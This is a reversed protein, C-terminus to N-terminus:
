PLPEKKVIIEIYHKVGFRYNYAGQTTNDFMIRRKQCLRSSAPLDAETM